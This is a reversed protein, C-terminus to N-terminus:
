RAITMSMEDMSQMITVDFIALDEINL